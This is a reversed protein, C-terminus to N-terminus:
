CCWICLGGLFIASIIIPGSPTTLILESSSLGSSIYGHMIVGQVRSIDLVPNLCFLIPLGNWHGEGQRAGVCLNMHKKTYRPFTLFLRKRYRNQVGEKQAIDMFHLSVYFVLRRQRWLHFIVCSVHCCQRMSSTPKSVNICRGAKSTMTLKKRRQSDSAQLGLVLSM